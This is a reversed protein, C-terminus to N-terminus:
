LKFDTHTGSGNESFRARVAEIEKQLVRIIKKVDEETYEYASRNSLNGILRLDRMTRTVRKGALEVFKDRKRSVSQGWLLHLQFARM